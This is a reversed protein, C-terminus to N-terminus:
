LGHVRSCCGGVEDTVQSDSEGPTYEETGGPYGETEYTRFSYMRNDSMAEFYYFTDNLSVESHHQPFPLQPLNEGICGVGGRNM